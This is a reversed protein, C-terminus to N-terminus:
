RRGRGLGIARGLRATAPLAQDVRRVGIKPDRVSGARRLGAHGTRTLEVEGREEPGAVGARYFADDSDRLREIPEAVAFGGVVRHPDSLAHLRVIRAVM